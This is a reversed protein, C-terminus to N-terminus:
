SRRKPRKVEPKGGQPAQARRLLAQLLNGRSVIGIVKGDTAVPLRRVAFRNLLEVIEELPTDVDVAVVDRTMLDQVKLAALEDAARAGEGSLLEVLRPKRGDKPRLFDGESILGVLRDDADVVPLGSIKHEVMLMVAQALPTEPRVTAAGTTMVDAANM